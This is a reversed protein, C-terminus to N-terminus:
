KDKIKCPDYKQSRQLTNLDFFFLVEEGAKIQEIPLSKGGNLTIKTGAIVCFRSM